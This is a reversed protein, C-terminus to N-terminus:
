LKELHVYLPNGLVVDFGGTYETCAAEPSCAGRGDGTGASYAPAHEPTTGTDAGGTRPAHEVSTRGM